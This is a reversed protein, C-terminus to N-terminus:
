RLAAFAAPTFGTFEKFEAILHSQDFYGLELAAAAWDGTPAAAMRTMAAQFRAMRCLMKPSVGLCDRFKRALHQRTFGCRASLREVSTAGGSRLVEAAIAPVSRDPRPGEALRQSLEEEVLRLRERVGRAERIREALVRGRAGWFHELDLFRDTLEVAPAQLFASACGPHFCVAFFAIRGPLRLLGPRTIPGVVHGLERMPVDRGGDCLAFPGSLNFNLTVGPAPILTDVLPDGPEFRFECAAREGPTRLGADEPDASAFCGYSHVFPRLAPSPPYETYLFGMRDGEEACRAAM